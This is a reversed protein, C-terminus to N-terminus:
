LPESELSQWNSTATVAHQQQLLLLSLSLRLYHSLPFRLIALCFAGIAFQLRIRSEFLRALANREKAEFLRAKVISHKPRGRLGAQPGHLHSFRSATLRDAERQQAATRGGQVRQGLPRLTVTGAQTHM